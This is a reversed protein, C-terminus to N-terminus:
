IYRKLEEDIKEAVQRDVTEKGSVRKVVDREAVGRRILYAGALLGIFPVAWALISLGRAPPATLISVGYEDVFFEIIQERTWGERLKERIVERMAEAAPSRSEGVTQGDCVPCWLELAISEVQQEFSEPEPGSLLGPLLALSLSLIIIGGLVPWYWRSPTRQNM